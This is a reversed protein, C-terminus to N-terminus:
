NIGKTTEVYEMYKNQTKLINVLDYFHKIRFEINKAVTFWYTHV